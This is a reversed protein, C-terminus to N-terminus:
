YLFPCQFNNGENIEQKFLEFDRLGSNLKWIAFYPKVSKKFFFSKGIKLNLFSYHYFLFNQFKNKIKKMNILKITKKEKEFLQFNNKFKKLIINVTKKCYKFKLDDIIKRLEMKHKVYMLWQHVAKELFRVNWHKRAKIIKAKSLNQFSLYLMRRENMDIKINEKKYKQKSDYLKVLNRFMRQLKNTQLINGIMLNRERNDIRKNKLLIFKILTKRQLYLVREKEIKTLHSKSDFYIKLFIDFIKRLLNKQYLKITSDKRLRHLTCKRVTCSFIFWAKRLLISNLKSKIILNHDERKKIKTTYLMWKKIKQQLKYKKLRKMQKGFFKHYSYWVFFCVKVKKKIYHNRGRKFLLYYSNTFYLSDSIQNFFFNMQKFQIHSRAIKHGISDYDNKLQHNRWFKMSKSLIKNEYFKIGSEEIMKNNTSCEMFHILGQIGKKLFLVSYTRRSGDNKHIYKVKSNIRSSDSYNMQKWRYIGNKKELIINQLVEFACKMGRLRFHIIAPDRINRVTHMKLKLIQFVKLGEKYLRFNNATEKLESRVAMKKTHLILKRYTFAWSRKLLNLDGVYCGMIFSKIIKIRTKILIFLKQQLKKNSISTMMKRMYKGSSNNYLQKLVKWAYKYLLYKDIMSDCDLKADDDYKTILVEKGKGIVGSSVPLKRRLPAASNGQVTRLQPTSVCIISFADDLHIMLVARILLNM